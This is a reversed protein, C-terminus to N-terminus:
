GTLGPARRVLARVLGPVIGQFDTKFITGNASINWPQNSNFVLNYIDGGTIDLVEGTEMHLKLPVDGDKRMVLEYENSSFKNNWADSFSM